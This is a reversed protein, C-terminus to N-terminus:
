KILAKIEAPLEFVAPEVKDLEVSTITIVIDIGSVSQKITTPMMVKDFKKYDTTTSTVQMAGMPGERTAIAGAKLGTTIDFFGIDEGGEKRTMSVRYVEKGDFMEKAVTKMASYRLAPNLGAEFDSDLKKQELAAGTTLMPGTMASLTWAHTGDFGESVNGIGEINQKVLIKNPRMTFIEVSGSMGNAPIALKGVARQSKLARLAEAGGLAQIHRDIIRQASPLDGAPKEQAPAAPPTQALASAGFTLVCVAAIACGLRRAVCFM